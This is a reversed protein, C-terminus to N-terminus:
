YIDWLSVKGDKSGAALWHTTQAKRDRRQQVTNMAWNEEGRTRVTLATSAEGSNEVGQETGVWGGDRVGGDEREKEEGKGEEGGPSEVGPGAEEWVTAFSTAYCGDGHWKLVALERMTKASYVRM